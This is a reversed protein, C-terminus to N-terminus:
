DIICDDLGFKKLCENCHAKDALNTTFQVKCENCYRTISTPLKRQYNRKITKNSKSNRCSRCYSQTVTIGNKMTRYGFLKEVNETGKAKANCKPCAAYDPLEVNHIKNDVYKDLSKVFLDLDDLVWIDHFLPYKNSNIENWNRLQNDQVIMILHHSKGFQKMFMAYVIADADTLEEHIEIIIEKNKFKRNKLIFDPTYINKPNHTDQLPFRRSRIDFEIKSKKLKNHVKLEWSSLIRDKRKSILEDIKKSSYKNQTTKQNKKNKLQQELLKFAYSGPGSFEM